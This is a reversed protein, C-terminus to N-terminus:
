KRRAQEGGNHRRAAARRILNLSVMIRYKEKCAFEAEDVDNFCDSKANKPKDGGEYECLKSLPHARLFIVLLSIDLPQLCEFDIVNSM